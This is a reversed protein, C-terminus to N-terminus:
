TEEGVSINPIDAEVSQRTSEPQIVAQESKNKLEVM